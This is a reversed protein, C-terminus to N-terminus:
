FQRELTISCGPLKKRLVKLVEQTVHSDSITLAKLTTIQVLREAAAETVTCHILSLSRLPLNTLHKLGEDSINSFGCHLTRLLRLNAIHALGKDTVETLLLDLSRLSVPLRAVSDNNVATDSLDLHELETMRSMGRLTTVKTHKLNLLRLRPLSCIHVLGTDSIATDSVDLKALELGILDAMSSDTVGSGSLELIVLHPFSQLVKLDTILKNNHLDLASIGSGHLNALGDNSIGTESLDLVVLNPLKALHMLDENTVNSRSLNLSKLNSCRSLAEAAGSRLTAHSLDLDSVRSQRVKEAMARTFTGSYSAKGNQSEDVSKAFYRYQNDFIREAVPAWWYQTLCALALIGAVLALLYLVETIESAATKSNSIMGSAHKDAKSKDGTDLNPATM